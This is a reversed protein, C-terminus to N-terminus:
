TSLKKLDCPGDLGNCQNLLLNIRDIDDAPVLIFLIDNAKIHVNGKPLIIRGDRIISSILINQGLPLESIKRNISVSDESIHIEFMEIDSAQTSHLEVIYPNSPKKPVTFKFLKSLFGLTTGQLICTTFVAFFIIDFIFGNSDLGAAAPYTALVIPVAGKIGGWTLFIKEKFSYKFPLTCLFVAIPRALFIMAAIVILGEKWINVFRSPFALLGLFLFLGVNCMSSVSELFNNVGQKAAFKSNGLWYGMFFVAIIGNAKVLVALSYTFLIMGIMLVNYNGRNDSNFKNFIFITIKSLIFGIIVGGAFQWILSLFIIFPSKIGETLLQIVTVTLLIAMPDNAASEVNLTTALKEKIPREKTIMFVAAADTSSIISAILFARLLEVKLVFHIFLGLAAATLVVGLTALTLSAGAAEKLSKRQVRFGGDFIIFILLIDSIQKTLNANDFYFLNLVDSGAILGILIFVILLPLGIKSSLKSSLMSLIILFSFILIM